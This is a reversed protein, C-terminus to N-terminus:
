MLGQRSPYPSGSSGLCQGLFSPHVLDGPHSTLVDFVSKNPPVTKLMNDLDLSTQPGRPSDGGPNTPRPFGWYPPTMYPSPGYNYYTFRPFHFFPLVSPPAVVNPAVSKTYSTPLDLSLLPMKKPPETPSYNGADTDSSPTSCGDDERPRKTPFGLRQTQRGLLDESREQTEQFGVPSITSISSSSSSYTSHSASFGPGRGNRTPKSQPYLLPASSWMNNIAVAPSIRQSEINRPVDPLDVDQLDNLLSDIMFSTNLKGGTNTQHPDEALPLSSAHSPMHHPAYVVVNHEYKYNHLIYPALDQVFYDSGGRTLATNQLKMADLPIRSVDVTWFNGKAQPKGPDKLVKKFCDNSSLNHRISDKWGMYDGKFFPFLTSVEKLIQSLKLRKEPSNQIVLAIMALYSYPPKAYRHYNKKKSKRSLTEDGGLSDKTGEAQTCSGEQTGPSLGHMSGRDPSWTGGERYLPPWPQACQEYSHGPAAPVQEQYISSLLALSPPEVSEYQSGVPFGAYLSSPDRM